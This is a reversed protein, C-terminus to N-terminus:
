LSSKILCLVGLFHYFLGIESFDAKNKGYITQINQFNPRRMMLSCLFGNNKKHM